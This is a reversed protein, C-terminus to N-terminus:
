LRLLMELFYYPLQWIMMDLFHNPPQWITFELIIGLFHSPPQWITREHGDHSFWSTTVLDDV